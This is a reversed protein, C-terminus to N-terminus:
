RAVITGKYMNMGCAFGVSGSAPMTFDIKVPKKLPLDKRIDLSPFVIQQGCGEDTTRTITLAVPKGAPAELSAPHYGEADVTVSLATAGPPAATAVSSTSGPPGDSGSKSCASLGLAAVLALLASPARLSTM